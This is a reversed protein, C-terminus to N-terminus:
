IYFFGLTVDRIPLFNFSFFKRCRVNIKVLQECNVYVYELRKNILQLHYVLVLVQFTEYRRNSDIIESIITLSSFTFTLIFSLVEM